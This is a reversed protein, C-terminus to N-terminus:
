PTLVTTGTGSHVPSAPRSDINSNNQRLNHASDGSSAKPRKLRFVDANYKRYVPHGSGLVAKFWPESGSFDDDLTESLPNM